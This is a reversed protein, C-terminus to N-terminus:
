SPKKFRPTSSSAYAVYVADVEEAAYSNMALRAIPTIDTISPRDSIDTFVARVNLGYRIM